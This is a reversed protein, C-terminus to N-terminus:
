YPPRVLAAASEAAGTLWEVAEREDSFLQALYGANVLATEMFDYSRDGPAVLMAIRWSRKLGLQRAQTYAYEYQASIPAQFVADRSDFMLRKIQHAEGLAIAARLREAMDAATRSSSRSRYHIYSGDPSLSITHSPIPSAAMTSVPRAAMRMVHPVAKRHFIGGINIAWAINELRDGM